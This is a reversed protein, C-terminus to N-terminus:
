VEVEEAKKNKGNWYAPGGFKDVAYFYLWAKRRRLWKLWRWRTKAKITRLMNNLFVRDASEKDKITKGTHYCWDHIRCSEEIDLGLLNDPVMFELAKSGCGNCIKRKEEPTLEWYCAPAFLKVKPKPKSM